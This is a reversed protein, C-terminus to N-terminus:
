GRGTIVNAGYWVIGGSKRLRSVPTSLVPYRRHASSATDVSSHSFQVSRLLDLSANRDALPASM